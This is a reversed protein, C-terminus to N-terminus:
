NVTMEGMLGNVSQGQNLRQWNCATPQYICWCIVIRMATDHSSFKEVRNVIWDGDRGHTIQSTSQDSHYERIRSGLAPLRDSYSWNEWLIDTGNGSPMLKREEWGEASMSDAKYVIWTQETM